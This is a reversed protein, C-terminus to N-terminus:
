RSSSKMEKSVGYVPNVVCSSYDWGATWLEQALRQGVKRDNFDASKGSYSYVESGFDFVLVKTPELLSFKPPLGWSDAIPILEDASSNVEYVCSSEVM